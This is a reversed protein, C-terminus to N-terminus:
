FTSNQTSEQYMVIILHLPNLYTAQDLALTLFFFFFFFISADSQLNCPLIRHETLCTIDNSSRLGGHGPSYLLLKSTLNHSIITGTWKFIQLCIVLMKFSEATSPLGTSNKFSLLQMIMNALKSSKLISFVHM